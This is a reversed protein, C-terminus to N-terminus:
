EGNDDIEEELEEGVGQEENIEEVAAHGSLLAGHIVDRIIDPLKLMLQLRCIEATNTPAVTGLLTLADRAEREAYDCLLKFTASDRIEAEIDVMQEIRKIRPDKANLEALFDIDTADTM